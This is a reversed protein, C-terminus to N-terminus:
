KEFILKLSIWKQRPRGFSKKRERKGDLVIYVSRKKEMGAVRRAWGMKKIQDGFLTIHPACDPVEVIYV